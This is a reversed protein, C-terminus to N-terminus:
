GIPQATVLLSPKHACSLRNKVDPGVCVQYGSVVISESPINKSNASWVGLPIYSLMQLRVHATVCCDTADGQARPIGPGSWWDEPNQSRRANFGRRPDVFIIGHGALLSYTPLLIHQLRCVQRFIMSSFRVWYKFCMLDMIKCCGINDYECTHNVVFPWKIETHLTKMATTRHQRHM